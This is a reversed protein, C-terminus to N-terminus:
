NGEGERAKQKYLCRSTGSCNEMTCNLCIEAEVHKKNALRKSEERKRGKSEFPRIHAIGDAAIFRQAKM